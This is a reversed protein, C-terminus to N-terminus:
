LLMVPGCTLILKGNEDFFKYGLSEAKSRWESALIQSAASLGTSGLKDLANVFNHCQEEIDEVKSLVPLTAMFCNM